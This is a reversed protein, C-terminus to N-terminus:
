SKDEVSFSEGCGCGGKANPNEWRFGYGVLGDNWNLVAGELFVLSRDDVIIALGDFDLLRDRHPRVKDAFDFHYSLGSCGGGKVGVRIGLKGEGAESLKVKGMEIARPTLQIPFANKAEADAQNSTEGVLLNYPRSGAAAVM